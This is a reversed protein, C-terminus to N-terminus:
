FSIRFIHLSSNFFNHASVFASSSFLIKGNQIVTITQNLKQYDQSKIARDVADQISRGFDDWNQQNAM